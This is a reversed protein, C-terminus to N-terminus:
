RIFFNKFHENEPEVIHAGSESLYNCACIVPTSKVASDGSHNLIEASIKFKRKILQKNVVACGFDRGTFSKVTRNLLEKIPRKDFARSVGGFCTRKRQETRVM